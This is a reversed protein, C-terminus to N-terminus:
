ERERQEALFAILPEPQPFSFGPDSEWADASVWVQAHAMGAILDSPISDSEDLELLRQRTPEDLTNWWAEIRESQEM